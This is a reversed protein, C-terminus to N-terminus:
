VVFLDGSVSLSVRCCWFAGAVALLSLIAGQVSMAEGSGNYVFGGDFVSLFIFMCVNARCVIEFVSVSVVCFTESAPTISPLCCQRLSLRFAYAYAELKKTLWMPTMNVM